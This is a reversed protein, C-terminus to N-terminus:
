EDKIIKPEENDEIVELAEDNIIEAEITKEERPEDIIKLISNKFASDKTTIESVIKDMQMNVNIEPQDSALGQVKAFKMLIDASTRIAAVANSNDGEKDYKESLLQTANALKILQNTLGEQTKIIRRKYAGEIENKSEFLVEQYLVIFNRITNVNIKEHPYKINLDEVIKTMSKGHLIARIVNDEEKLMAIINIEQIVNLLDNVTADSQKNVFGTMDKIEDLILWGNM